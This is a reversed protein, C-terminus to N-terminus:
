DVLRTEIEFCRPSSIDELNIGGFGPAIAKVIGVIEDPDKTALCIPFADVGAFEKFLIAKGEMVPMAAEPGIDGLGLVATGDTVVAVTNKKITYEHAKERDEAIEMCVRAVGPTYAMSLDDRNHIHAKLGTEIKGGRHLDLTRDTTEVVHAGAVADVAIVIAEGHASDLCDVTFDRISTEGGQEVIDIAGISGGAAGVASTVHGLIDLGRELEVRLTLSFQASPSAMDFSPFRSPQLHIRVLTRAATEARRIMYVRQVQPFRCM